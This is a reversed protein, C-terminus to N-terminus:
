KFLYLRYRGSTGALEIGWQAQRKRFDTAGPDLDHIALASIDHRALEEIAARRLRPPMPNDTVETRIQVHQWPSGSDRRTSLVFRVGAESSNTDATVRDLKEMRSFDVEIYMGPGSRQWSDWRTLPSNDFALPVDWPNPAASLRWAPDRPLERGASYYRLESVGCHEASAPATLGLRVKSSSLPEFFLSHRRVPQMSTDLATRLAEGLHVGLASQWGVM